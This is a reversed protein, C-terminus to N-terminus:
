IGAAESGHGMGTEAEAELAHHLEDGAHGIDAVDDGEGAGGIIAFELFGHGQAETHFFYCVSACPCLLAAYNGFQKEGRQLQSLYKIINIFRQKVENLLLCVTGRHSIIKACLPM